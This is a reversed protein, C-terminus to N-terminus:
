KSNKVLQRIKLLTYLWWSKVGWAWRRVAPWGGVERLDGVVVEAKWLGGVVPAHPLLSTALHDPPQLFSM